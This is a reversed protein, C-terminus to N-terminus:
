NSALIEGGYGAARVAQTYREYFGCQLEYLFELTDLLRQRQYAQTGNLQDPDWYWPNGLPLINNRDLREGGPFEEGAFSDLAKEGWARVLGAEDGYRERLWTCFREAVQRRLTPSAKLPNMSTFFLISQENIIEVFAIAPDEAYTLGTYPNKHKLVNVMQRIHVNQLEPSYHIGSHPTAIRNRKNDFSGFEELYPVFKRDDPGLRLSGFHASLAVYIGAAKFRAIQYDMRDLARPDFEVCSNESQIGAWRAGDVFKHLRVSNIGYKAYFAARRDALDKEPACASYCLNL